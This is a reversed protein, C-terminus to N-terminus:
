VLHGKLTSMHRSLYLSTKRFIPVEKLLEPEDSFFNVPTSFSLVKTTMWLGTLCFYVNLAKVFIIVLIIQSGQGVLRDNDM